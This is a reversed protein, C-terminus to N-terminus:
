RRHRVGYALTGGGLAVLAVFSAVLWWATGGSSGDGTGTNPGQIGSGVGGGPTTATAAPPVPTATSPARTAPVATSSAAATASSTPTASRVQAPSTPTCIAVQAHFGVLTVGGSTQSMTLPGPTDTVTVCTIGAFATGAQRASFGLLAIAAVLAATGVLTFRNVM